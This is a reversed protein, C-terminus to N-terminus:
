PTLYKYLINYQKRAKRNERMEIKLKNVAQNVGSIHNMNFASVIESLTYGGLERSLCIAIWRAINKSGRGRKSLLVSGKAVKIEKAVAEVIIDITPLRELAKNFNSQNPMEARNLQKEVFVEGGLLPKIHKKSFFTEIEEDVGAAVYQKYRLYRKHAGMIGYCVDRYLWPPCPEQNVYAPYSSWPYAEIDKVLSRKTEIPNHHIYRSLQLLYANAEILIAKYRGRFLPGDTKKLRNYRQTYVGNIHRMCRSLNGRPTCVLLHYHNGMLCYAHIELGFRQHAEALADLFAQYFSESHFIHQRGRGRNMVHYYANEYELRLPRSM